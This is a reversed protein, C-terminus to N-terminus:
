RPRPCVPPRLWLWAQTPQMTQGTSRARSGAAGGLGFPKDMALSELRGPALSGGVLILVIGAVAAAAVPRWRRSRLHGGPLVLAPLTVGLTTWTVWDLDATV